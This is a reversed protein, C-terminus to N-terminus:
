LIQHRIGEHDLDKRGATSGTHHTAKPEKQEELTGAECVTRKGDQIEQVIIADM